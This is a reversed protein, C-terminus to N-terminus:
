PAPKRFSATSVLYLAPALESCQPACSPDFSLLALQTEDPSWKPQMFYMTTDDGQGKDESVHVTRSPIDLIYVKSNYPIMPSNPDERGGSQISFALQRSDPSWAADYGSTGPPTVTLWERGDASVLVGRLARDIIAGMVFWNGDPSWSQIGLVSYGQGPDTIQKREGTTLNLLYVTEPDSGYLSTDTTQQDTAYALWEGGPRVAGSAIYPINREEIVHGNADLTVLKNDGAYASSVIGSARDPSWWHIQFVTDAENV